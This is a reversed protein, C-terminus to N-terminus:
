GKRLVFHALAADSNEIHGCLWQRIHALAGADLPAQAERMADLLFSLVTLLEVHERAHEAAAPYHHGAMFAEERGFHDRALRIFRLLLDAGDRGGGSALVEHLENLTAVLEEHDSDIPPVGVRLEGPWDVFSM